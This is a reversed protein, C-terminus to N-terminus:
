RASSGDSTASISAPVMATLARGTGSASTSAAQVAGSGGPWRVTSM